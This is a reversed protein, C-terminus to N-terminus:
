AHDLMLWRESGTDGTRETKAIMTGSRLMGKRVLMEGYRVERLIELVRVWSCCDMLRLGRRVKEVVKSKSSSATSIVSEEVWM